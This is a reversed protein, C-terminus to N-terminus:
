KPNNLFFDHNQSHNCIQGETSTTPLVFASLVSNVMGPPFFFLHTRLHLSLSFPAPFVSILLRLTKRM